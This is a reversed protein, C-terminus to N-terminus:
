AAADPDDVPEPDSGGQLAPTMRPAVRPREWSAPAATALVPEPAYRIRVPELRPGTWPDFDKPRLLWYLLMGIVPALLVLGLWVLKSIGIDRRALIDVLSLGIVALVPVVVLWFVFGFALAILVNEM